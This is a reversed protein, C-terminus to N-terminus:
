GNPVNTTGSASDGSNFQALPIFVGSFLNSDTATSFYGLQILQGQGNGPTAPSQNDLAAGNRDKYLTTGSNSMTYPQQALMQSTLVAAAILGLIFTTPKM